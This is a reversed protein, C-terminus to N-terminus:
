TLYYIVLSSMQRNWENEFAKFSRGIILCIFHKILTENSNKDTKLLMKIYKNILIIELDSWRGKRARITMKSRINILLYRINILLYRMEVWNNDGFDKKLSEVIEKDESVSNVFKDLNTDKEITSVRNKSLVERNKKEKKIKESYDEGSDDEEELNFEDNNNKNKLSLYINEESELHNDNEFTNELFKLFFNVRTM